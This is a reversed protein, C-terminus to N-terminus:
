WASLSGELELESMQGRIGLVMRDSSHEPDYVTHEDAILYSAHALCNLYFQKLIM